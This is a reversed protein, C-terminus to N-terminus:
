LEIISVPNGREEILHLLDPFSLWVTATNDCPHVGLQPHKELDRDFVMEVARDADNLLGLPSVAGRSLGLLRQLREESAFSLKGCGLREGLRGLDARKTKELSVLFHRKGKADRLFLNKCIDETHPLGVAEMEQMTYVAPHENATFAIGKDSLLQLIDQKTWPEM